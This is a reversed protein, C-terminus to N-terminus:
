PTIALNSVPLDQIKDNSVAVTTYDTKPRAVLLGELINQFGCLDALLKQTITYTVSLNKSTGDAYEIKFNTTDNKTNLPLVYRTAEPGTDVLVLSDDVTITKIDVATAFTVGMLNTVPCRFIDINSSPVTTPTGNVVNISDFSSETVNLHSFVYREGCDASVFQVQREYDLRIISDGKATTFTYDIHTSLPNLPLAVRTAVSDGALVSNSGSISIGTFDLIDSGFGIVKFNVVITDNNLQFCDPQDLCSLAIFSLFAFWSLKKM